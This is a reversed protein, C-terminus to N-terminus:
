RRRLYKRWGRSEKPDLRDRLDEFREQDVAYHEFNRGVRRIRVSKIVDGAKLRKVARRSASDTVQGFITHKGDLHPTPGFTLFFQSGNTGAGANAMSLIGAKDHKLEPRIEDPFNYGPGGSGDGIPCGGQAMFEPIVRHFTLGDYYPRGNRDDNWITGEALGVFNMVTLPAKDPFLELTIDGRPTDLTAYIGPELDPTPARRRQAPAASALALACTLALLSRTM